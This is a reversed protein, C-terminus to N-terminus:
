KWVEHNLNQTLTKKILKIQQDSAQVGYSRKATNEGSYEESKIEIIPDNSETVLQKGDTTLTYILKDENDKERYFEIKVPTSFTSIRKEENKVILVKEYYPKLEGNDTKYFATVKIPYDAKNYMWYQNEYKTHGGSTTGICSIFCVFSMVTFIKLLNKM